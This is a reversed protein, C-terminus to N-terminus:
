IADITIGLEELRALYEAETDFIEIDTVFAGFNLCTNSEVKGYIYTDNNNAIYYKTPVPKFIRKRWVALINFTDEIDGNASEWLYEDSGNINQQKNLLITQLYTGGEGDDVSKGNTIEDQTWGDAQKALANDSNFQELTGLKYM